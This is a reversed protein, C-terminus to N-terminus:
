GQNNQQKLVQFTEENSDKMWQIAEQRRKNKRRVYMQAKGMKSQDKLPKEQVRNVM